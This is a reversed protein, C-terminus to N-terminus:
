PFYAKAHAQTIEVWSHLGLQTAEKLLCYNPSRRGNGDPSPGDPINNHIIGWRKSYTARVISNGAETLGTVTRVKTVMDVTCGMTLAVFVDKSVIAKQLETEWDPAIREFADAQEFWSPEWKFLKYTM